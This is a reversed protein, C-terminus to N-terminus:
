STTRKEKRPLGPISGDGMSNPRPNHWHQQELLSPDKDDIERLYDEPPRDLIDLNTGESIVAINAMDDIMKRAEKGSGYKALLHARPFIHHQQLESPQYDRLRKLSHWDRVEPRMTVAHFLTYFRSPSNRRMRFGVPTVEPMKGLRTEILRQLEDWPNERELAQIDADIMSDTFSRYINFANSTLVYALAKAEESVTPFKQKNALYRTLAPFSAVSKIAKPDHMGLVGGLLEVMVSNCQATEELAKRLDNEPVGRLGARQYRGSHSAHMSRIIAAERMATGIITSQRRGREAIIERKADPWKTSMLAIELDERSLPTANSNIRDFMEVVDDTDRSSDIQDFAIDREKINKVTNVREDYRDQHEEVYHSSNRIQSRWQRTMPDDAGGFLKSVQIWMHDERLERSTPFKFM